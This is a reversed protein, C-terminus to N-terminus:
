RKMHAVKTDLSKFTDDLMEKERMMTAIRDEYSQKEMALRETDQRDRDICARLRELEATKKNTDSNLQELDTKEQLPKLDLQMMLFGVINNRVLDSM